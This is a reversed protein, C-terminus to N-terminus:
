PLFYKYSVWTICVDIYDRFVVYRDDNLVLKRYEEKDKDTFIYFVLHMYKVVM